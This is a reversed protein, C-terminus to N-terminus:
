QSKADQAASERAHGTKPFLRKLPTLFYGHQNSNFTGAVRTAVDDPTMRELTLLAAITDAEVAPTWRLLQLVTRWPSLVSGTTFSVCEGDRLRVYRQSRYTNYRDTGRRTMDQCFEPPEPPTEVAGWVWAASLRDLIYQPPATQRAVHVRTAVVDAQDAPLFAGYVEFLVGDLRMAAIEAPSFRSINTM